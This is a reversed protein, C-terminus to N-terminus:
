KFSRLLDSVPKWYEATRKQSYLEWFEELWPNDSFYPEAVKSNKAFYYQPHLLLFYRRTLPRYGTSLNTILFQRLDIKVDSRKLRGLAAGDSYRIGSPGFKNHTWILRRRSFSPYFFCYNNLGSSSRIGGHPSFFRINFGQSHLFEVDENFVNAIKAEDYSALEGANCHYAFCMNKEDQLRKLLAYNIDYSSVINNKNIERCFIATTSKIGLEGEFMCLYETEKPGNDSDHQIFLNLKQSGIDRLSKKRWLQYEDKFLVSLGQETQIDQDPSFKLDNFDLFNVMDSKVLMEYFSQIYEFPLIGVPSLTNQAPFSSTLVGRMPISPNAMLSTSEQDLLASKSSALDIQSFQPQITYGSKGVEINQGSRKGYMLWLTNQPTLAIAQVQIDDILPGYREMVEEKNRFLRVHGFSDFNPVSAVILTGIPIVSLIERDNEVHELVETCVVSDFSPLGLFNTTPLKMKKFLYNPCRRSAQSIAVSSFDLGTYRVEPMHAAIFEAFQGPGCGLDLISTSGNDYLINVIRQWISIYECNEGSQAYKHSHAFVADYYVVSAEKSGSQVQLLLENYINRIQVDEQLALAKEYSEVADQLMNLQIQGRALHIWWARHNKDIALGACYAEVAGKYNGLQHRAYGLSGHYSAVDSRLNCAREFYISAEGWEQRKQHFVGKDRQLTPNSSLLPLARDLWYEAIKANGIKTNAKYGALSIELVIKDFRSPTALMADVEVWREDKVLQQLTFLFDDLFEQINSLKISKAPSSKWAFVRKRCAKYISYLFFPKTKSQQNEIAQHDTKILDQEVALGCNKTWIENLLKPDYFIEDLSNKTKSMFRALAMSSSVGSFWGNRFLDKRRAFLNVLKSRIEPRVADLMSFGSILPYLSYYRQQEAPPVQMLLDSASRYKRNDIYVNIRNDSLLVNKLLSDAAREVDERLFCINAEYAAAPFEITVAAKYFAEAGINHNVDKYMVEPLHDDQMKEPTSTYKWMFKGSEGMVLACPKHEDKMEEPTPAYKWSYAGNDGLVCASLFYRAISEADRKYKENGTLQYAKVLVAAFVHTHNLAEVSNDFPSRYYGGQVSDEYFIEGDFEDLSETVSRILRERNDPSLMTGAESLLLDCIPLLIMGTSTVEFSRVHGEKPASVGWCKTIRKHYQDQLELSDDRENLLTEYTDLVLEAFRYEGTARFAYVASRGWYGWGWGYTRGKTGPMKELSLQTIDAARASLYSYLVGSKPRSAIFVAYLEDKENQDGTTSESLSALFKEPFELINTITTEEASVSTGVLVRKRCAEYESYLYLKEVVPQSSLPEKWRDIRRLDREAASTCNKVWIETVPLIYFTGYRSKDEKGFVEIRVKSDKAWKAIIARTADVLNEQNDAPKNWPLIWMWGTPKLSKTIHDLFQQLPDNNDPQAFWYCNISSRCFIGDFKMDKFPWDERLNCLTMNHGRMEGLKVVAPDFDVGFTIAGKEKMIDLFDCQGPGIDLIRLGHFDIHRFLM